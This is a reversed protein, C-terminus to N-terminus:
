RVSAVGENNTGVTKWDKPGGMGIKYELNRTLFIRNICKM